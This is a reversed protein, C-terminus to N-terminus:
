ELRFKRCLFHKHHQDRDRIIHRYHHLAEVDLLGAAGLVSTVLVALVLLFIGLPLKFVPPPLRLTQMQITTEPANQLKQTIFDSISSAFLMVSLGIILYGLKTLIDKTEKQSLEQGSM